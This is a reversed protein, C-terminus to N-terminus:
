QEPVFRASRVVWLAATRGIFRLVPEGPPEEAWLVLWEVDDVLM